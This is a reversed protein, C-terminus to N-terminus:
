PKLSQFTCLVKGLLVLTAPTVALFYVCSIGWQLLKHVISQAKQLPQPSRTSRIKMYHQLQILKGPHLVGQFFCFLVKLTKMKNVSPIVCIQTWTFVQILMSVPDRSNPRGISYTLTSMPSPLFMYKNNQHLSLDQIKTPLSAAM